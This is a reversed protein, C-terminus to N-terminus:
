KTNEIKPQQPLEADKRNAFVREFYEMANITNDPTEEKKKTYQVAM